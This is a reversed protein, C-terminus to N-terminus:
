LDRSIRSNAQEAIKDFEDVSFAPFTTFSINTLKTLVLSAELVENYGPFNVAFAVDYSGMLVYMLDLKGGFKKIVDIVKQTREATIGKIGESSYKGLMLFKTM